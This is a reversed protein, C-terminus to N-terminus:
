YGLKGDFIMVSSAPQQRYGDLALSEAFAKEADGQRRSEAYCLVREALLKSRIRAKRHLM